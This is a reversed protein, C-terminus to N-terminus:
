ECFPCDVKHRYRKKLAYFWRECDLCFLYLRHYKQTKYYLAQIVNIRESGHKPIEDIVEIYHRFWHQKTNRRHQIWKGRHLYSKSISITYKKSM